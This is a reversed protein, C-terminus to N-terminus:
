RFIAEPQDDNFRFHQPVGEDALFQFRGYIAPVHQSYLLELSVQHLEDASSRLTQPLYQMIHTALILFRYIHVM